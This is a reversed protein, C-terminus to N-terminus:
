ELIEKIQKREEETLDQWLYNFVNALAEEFKEFYESEYHDDIYLCYFCTKEYNSRIIREDYFNKQILWKILELQKEATFPPYNTKAKDCTKCKEKDGNTCEVELMADFIYGDGCYYSILNANGYMKEVENM